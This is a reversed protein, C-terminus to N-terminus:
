GNGGGKKKRAKPMPIETVRVRAVRGFGSYIGTEVAARMLRISEIYLFGSPNVMAYLNMPVMRKVTPKKSAM